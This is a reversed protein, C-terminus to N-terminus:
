GEQIADGNWIPKTHSSKNTHVKLLSSHVSLPKHPASIAAKANMEDFILALALPAEVYAYKISSSVFCLSM